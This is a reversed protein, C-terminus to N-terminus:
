RGCIDELQMYANASKIHVYSNNPFNHAMNYFPNNFSLMAAPHHTPWLSPIPAHGPGLGPPFISPPIQGLHGHTTSNGQGTANNPIIPEQFQQSIKRTLGTAQRHTLLGTPHPRATANPGTPVAPYWMAGGEEMIQNEERIVKKIYPDLNISFPLFIKLERLTMHKKVRLITDLKTEDRDMSLLPEIDKQVPIVSKTKEYVERFHIIM